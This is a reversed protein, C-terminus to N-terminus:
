ALYQKLIRDVEHFCASIDSAFRVEQVGALNSFEACGDQRIVIARDFGLRGQFLGTEHIVNMRAAPPGDTREDEATHLLFAFDCESMLTRLREVATQGAVPTSNFELCQIGLDDKIHDKLERWAQSRGHGLFITKITFSPTLAKPRVMGGGRSRNFVMSEYAQSLSEWNSSSNNLHRALVALESLPQSTPSRPSLHPLVIEDNLIRAAVDVAVVACEFLSSSEVLEALGLRRYWKMWSVIDVPQFQSGDRGLGCDVRPGLGPARSVFRGGFEEVHTRLWMHALAAELHLRSDGELFAPTLMNLRELVSALFAHGQLLETVGALDRSENLDGTPSLLHALQSLDYENSTVLAGPRSNTDSLRAVANDWYARMARTTNIERRVLQHQFQDVAQRASPDNWSIHLGTDRFHTVKRDILESSNVTSGAFLLSGTERLPALHPSLQAIVPSQVLDVTPIVLTEGTLLLSYKMARLCADVLHAHGHSELGYFSIIQDNLLHFFM